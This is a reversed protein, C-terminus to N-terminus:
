SIVISIFEGISIGKKIRITAEPHSGDWYQYTVEIETNKSANSTELYSEILKKKLNVENASRDKDQNFM